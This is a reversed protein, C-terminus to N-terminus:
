RGVGFDNSKIVEDVVPTLVEETHHAKIIQGGTKRSSSQIRALKEETKSPSPISNVKEESTLIAFSIQEETKSPSSIISHTQIETKRPASMICKIMKDSFPRMGGLELLKEKNIKSNKETRNIIDLGSCVNNNFYIPISHSCGYKYSLAALYGPTWEELTKGKLVEQMRRERQTLAKLEENTYETPGLDAWLKRVAEWPYLFHSLVELTESHIKFNCVANLYKTDVKSSPPVENNSALKLTRVVAKILALKNDASQAKLDQDVARSCTESNLMLDHQIIFLSPLCPSKGKLVTSEKDRYVKYNQCPSIFSEMDKKLKEKEMFDFSVDKHVDGMFKKDEERVRSVAANQFGLSIQWAGHLNGSAILSSHLLSCTDYFNERDERNALSLYQLGVWHATQSAQNQLINWLESDTVSFDRLTMRSLALDRKLLASIFNWKHLNMGNIPRFKESKILKLINNHEANNTSEIDKFPDGLLNNILTTAQENYETIYKLQPAKKLNETLTKTLADFESEANKLNKQGNPLNGDKLGKLFSIIKQLHKEEPFEKIFLNLLTGLNKETTFAPYSYVLLDTLESSTLPIKSGLLLDVVFDLYWTEQSSGRPAKQPVSSSKQPSEKPTDKSFDEITMPNGNSSKLFTQVPTQISKSKSVSAVFCSSPELRKDVYVGYEAFDGPNTVGFTYTNEGTPEGIAVVNRGRARLLLGQIKVKQPPVAKHSILFGGTTEIKHDERTNINNSIGFIQCLEEYTLKDPFKAVNTKSLRETDQLPEMGYLPSLSTSCLFLCFIRKILM